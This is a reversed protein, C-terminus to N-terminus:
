KEAIREIESGLREISKSNEDGANKLANLDSEAKKLSVVIGEIKNFTGATRTYGNKIIDNNVEILSKVNELSKGVDIAEISIKKMNGLMERTEIKIDQVGDLITQFKEKMSIINEILKNFDKVATANIMNADSIIKKNNSLVDTILKTNKGTLEALKRIETAVVNFGKGSEGAHAAEISANMALLNTKESVNIIVAVTQNIKDSSQNILEMSDSLSKMQNQSQGSIDILVELEKFKEDITVAIRNLERDIKEISNFSDNIDAVSKGTVATVDGAKTLVIGNKSEMDRIENILLDFESKIVKLASETDNVVSIVKDSSSKLVESIEISSNVSELSKRIQALKKINRDLENEVVDLLKESSKFITYTMIGAVGVFLTIFFLSEIESKILEETAFPFVKIFYYAYIVGLIVTSYVSAQRKNYGVLSIVLMTFMMLLALIYMEYFHKYPRVYIFGVLAVITCIILLNSAVKYRGNKLVILVATLFLFSVIRLILDVSINNNIILLVMPLCVMITLFLSIMFIFNAKQRVRLSENKYIGTFFSFFNNM